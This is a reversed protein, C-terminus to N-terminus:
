PICKELYTDQPATLTVLRSGSKIGNAEWNFQYVGAQLNEWVAGYETSSYNIRLSGIAVATSKGEPGLYKLTILAAKGSKVNNM